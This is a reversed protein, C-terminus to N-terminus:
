PLLVIRIYDKLRFLKNGMGGQSDSLLILSQRGAIQPGPCMGEYNAFNMQAPELKTTFDAIATKFLFRSDPWTSLDSQASCQAEETPEISFLRIRCKAGIYNQPVSLEREMVILRGDPLAAIESIGHAYYKAETPLSPQELAYAYQATPSLSDNFELIRVANRGNAGDRKLPRETTTYFRSRAESRCLSEFGFNAHISDPAFMAPVQLERGTPKGDLSYEIIRQDDEASIFVTNASPLFCIGEEDRGIADSASTQLQSRTVNGIRGSATDIDINFIYFGSHIEKDSVVAYSNGEIHTIGSYNAPAIDWRKMSQQKLLDASQAYLGASCALMPVLVAFTLPNKM